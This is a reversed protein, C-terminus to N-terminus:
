VCKSVPYKASQKTVDRARTLDYTIIHVRNKYVYNTSTNAHTSCKELIIDRKSIEINHRLKIIKKLSENIILPQYYEICGKYM